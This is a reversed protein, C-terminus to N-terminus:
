YYAIVQGVVIAIVLILCFIAVWQNLNLKLFTKKKKQKAM